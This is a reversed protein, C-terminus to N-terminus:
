SPCSCEEETTFMATGTYPSSGVVEVATRVSVLDTGVVVTAVEVSTGTAEELTMLRVTGMTVAGIAVPVPEGEVLVLPVKVFGVRLELLSVEVDVLVVPPSSSSDGEEM